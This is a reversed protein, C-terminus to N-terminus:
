KPSERVASTWILRSRSFSSPTESWHLRLVTPPTPYLNSTVLDHFRCEATQKGHRRQNDQNGHHAHAGGRAGQHVIVQGALALLVQLGGGGGHGLQGGFVGAVGGAGAAVEGK